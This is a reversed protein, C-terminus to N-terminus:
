KWDFLRRAASRLVPRSNSLHPRQWQSGDTGCPGITFLGLPDLNDLPDNLVYAYRNWSQPNSPDVAALGAPDPSPWRGQISYERAPFDYLGSVTDQRQGTFSLDATGSQAYPEGFPAYAGDYYITRNSTSILRSSGLHDPHFYLSPGASSNALVAGGPLPVLSRTVAQGNMIEIKAGTPAYVFQSFTGSRNQEVVRDLADYTLSVSDITAPQGFASWTYTHLSDNTINGAGDYSPTFSGVSAMRNSSTSYTPQFSYPSGSKSINGFPDYSFTQAAASGCNATALRSLDDYSYSCNQTNASNFPDTIQQTALTGNANWTINGVVSQPSSGVTFKYQTM